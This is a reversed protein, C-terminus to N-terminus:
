KVEGCAWWILAVPSGVIVAAFALLLDNIM